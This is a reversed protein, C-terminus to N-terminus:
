LTGDDADFVYVNARGDGLPDLEFFFHDCCAWAWSKASPGLVLVLGLLAWILPRRMKRVLVEKSDGSRTPLVSERPPTSRAHRFTELIRQPERRSVDMPACAVSM